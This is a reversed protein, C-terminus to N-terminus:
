RKRKGKKSARAVELARNAWQALQDQDELVDVPVEYYQMTREDDYPRFPGTGASEFDSRNSDDVKFHLLDNAIFAFFMGDAYIGLGGFMRRSTIQGVSELQELVWNEFGSLPVPTVVRNLNRIVRTRQLSRGSSYRGVALILAPLRSSAYQFFPGPALPGIRHGSGLRPRRFGSM